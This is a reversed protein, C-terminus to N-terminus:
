SARWFAPQLRLLIEDQGARFRRVIQFHGVFGDGLTETVTMEIASIDVSCGHIRVVATERGLFEFRGRRYDVWQAIDGVPNRIVPQLKVRPNTVVM